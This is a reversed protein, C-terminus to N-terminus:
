RGSRDAGRFAHTGGSAGQERRALPCSYDVPEPKLQILTPPDSCLSPRVRLSCFPVINEPLGDGAKLSLRSLKQGVRGVHAEREEALRLWKASRLDTSAGPFAGAVRESGRTEQGAPEGVEDSFYDRTIEHSLDWAHTQRM